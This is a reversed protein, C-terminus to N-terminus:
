KLMQRALAIQCCLRAAAMRPGAGSMLSVLQMAKSWTEPVWWALAGGLGLAGQVQM